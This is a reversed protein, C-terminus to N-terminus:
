RLSLAHIVLAAKMHGFFILLEALIILFVPLMLDLGHKSIGETRM